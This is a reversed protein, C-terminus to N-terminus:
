DTSVKASSQTAKKARYKIFREFLRLSFLMKFEKGLLPYIIHLAFVILVYIITGASVISTVTGDSIFPINGGSDKSVVGLSFGLIDLIFAYVLVTIYFDFYRMANRAAFSKGLKNLIFYCVVIYAFGFLLSMFSIMVVTIPVLAALLRDKWLVM